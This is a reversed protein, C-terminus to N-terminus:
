RTAAVGATLSDINKFANRRLGYLVLISARSPEMKWIESMVMARQAVPTQHLSIQLIRVVVSFGDPPPGEEM